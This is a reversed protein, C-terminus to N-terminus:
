AENQRRRHFKTALYRYRKCNIHKAARAMKIQYKRWAYWFDSHDVILRPEYQRVKDPNMDIDESKDAGTVDVKVKRGMLLYHRYPRLKHCCSNSVWIYERRMLKFRRKYVTLVEVEYRAFRGRQQRKSIIRAHVVFDSECFQRKKNLTKKCTAGCYSPRTSPKRSPPKLEDIASQTTTTMPVTTTTPETTTTTPALTPPKVANFDLGAASIKARYDEEDPVVLIAKQMKFEAFDGSEKASNPMWYEYEILPAEELTLVMIYLDETTPGAITFTEKDKVREYHLSTGATPFEGPWGIVWNGNIIYKESTGEGEKLALYNKNHDKVNIRTSGSPIKVVEHYGYSSAGIDPLTDFVNQIHFCTSNNGGCVGCVDETMNSGIENDCGIKTCEGKICIDKGGNGCRTGDEATGFSRFYHFTSILCALECTNTGTYPIWKFTKSHHVHENQRSCQLERFSPSSEPCDQTNCLEHEVSIGECNVKASTPYRSICQRTRSSVGTGCTRSCVSWDSWRTWFHATALDDSEDEPSGIDLLNVDVDGPEVLGPMEPGIRMQQRLFDQRAVTDVGRKGNFAPVLPLTADQSPDIAESWTFCIALTTILIMENMKM